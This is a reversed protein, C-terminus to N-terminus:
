PLATEVEHERESAVTPKAVCGSLVEALNDVYPAQLMSSHGGDTDAITLNQAVTKWGLTEDTFIERYPTDDGEGSRARVILAPTHLLPQPRYLSEATDYIERFTLSPIMKPWSSGRKVLNRLLRFRASVSVAKVRRSIEWTAARIAKPPIKALGLLAKGAKHDSGTIEFVDHLRGLRQKMIRGSRKQAHPRAADLIAVLEVKEGQREAQSAMEYAIVGGACMGGLLYPGHPQLERLKALYFAAMEEIKTHALPAGSLRSPRLGIVRIDAPMARALNLYLLIEGDGDHVLFLNRRGEGKLEFLTESELITGQDVRNALARVTPSELITSLPLQKGFRHGIEAFLQASLLSTGGVAFFDDEAGIESLGLIEQWLTCLRRETDTAPPTPVSSLDRARLYNSRAARQVEEGSILKSALREYRESRGTGVQAKSPTSNKSEESRLAEIVAAPDHGPRHSIACAAATPIRYILGSAEKVLYPAAVSDAFARAPENKSTPAFKLDLYSLSREQAFEGLSRLITHEVGRGLVRCSLFMTDIVLAQDTQNAIAVGVLGYDGFRDRVRVRLVIYGGALLARMESETRRITTFNFQNTRQSLQAVRAWENDDPAAVDTVVELSAIFSAIDTASNESEQRAVNERYMATRRTDEATVAVKDFTWLNSLFDAIQDSQPLLLTVVQPLESRMLACEVPNDDIFVFSDLGLNLMRSLAIINQPKPDWNIRHAVVHELKLVMDKRREFVELVDREANKSALCVLVGQAQMEVAFEQLRALHEPITIGDVGDEGVVGAWLTQDCDLVLVKHSPVRLAHIKRALALAIAAYYTDSFPIHALDDGLEDYKELASLSDIEDSTIALIGSLQRVHDLVTRSFAAFEKALEKQLRLSPKFIVFLTPVKVRQAYGTLATKLEQVIRTALTRKEQLAKVDRVFDELRVLVVNIGGENTALLGAPQLLEQFVQNYPAFHVDLKLGAEQLVFSLSQLLPEATFTAAIAVAANHRPEVDSM